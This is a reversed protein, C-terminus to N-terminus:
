HKEERAQEVVRRAMADQTSLLTEADIGHRLFARFDLAHRAFWTRAGPVCLGAARMHDVTVRLAGV